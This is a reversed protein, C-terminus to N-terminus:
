PNYDRNPDLQLSNDVFHELPQWSSDLLTQTKKRKNRNYLFLYISKFVPWQGMKYKLSLLWLARLRYYDNLGIAHYRRIASRYVEYHGKLLDQKPIDTLQNLNHKRIVTGYHNAYKGKFKENVRMWMDSDEGVQIDENFLGVKEFVEKRFIFGNSNAFHITTISLNAMDRIEINTKTWRRFKNKQEVELMELSNCLAFGLDPESEIAMIMKRLHGPLYIDDSDLFCIFPQTAKLIGRNRAVSAGQSNCDNPKKLIKMKKGFSSAVGLTEDTSGDDSIIIEIPGAYQQNLVSRIADKVFEARNYTPIIISIGKM